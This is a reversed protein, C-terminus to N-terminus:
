QSAVKVCNRGAKKAAYLAVDAQKMISAFDHHANSRQAIGFSSTVKVIKDQPPKKTSKKPPKNPRPKTRIAIDYDAINQRLADVFPVVEVSTKGPFILVFEEGGFRFARGGGAVKNLKSAVLKLVEDGVEHGYSDNFKKFHDIDAMVVAYKRGLTPLFQMLARRSAIGTLEDRFAMAFSDKVVAYAILLCLILVAYSLVASLNFGHISILSMMVITLSLQTNNPRWLLCPLAIGLALLSLLLQLASFGQHLAPWLEFLWATAPTLLHASLWANEIVGNQLWVSVLLLVAITLFSTLLNLPSFGKDSSVMLWSLLLMSTSFRILSWTEAAFWTAQYPLIIVCLLGLTWVLRSRGFQWALLAAIVIGVYSLWNAQQLSQAILESKFYYAVSALFLLVLPAISLQFVRLIRQYASLLVVIAV